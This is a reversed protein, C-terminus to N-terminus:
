RLTRKIYTIKEVAATAGITHVNAAGHLAVVAIAVAIAVAIEAEPEPGPEVVVM